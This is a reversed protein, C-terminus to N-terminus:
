YDLDCFGSFCEGMMYGMDGSAFEGESSFASVDTPVNIDPSIEYGEVTPLRRSRAQAGQRAPAPYVLASWVRHRLMRSPRAQIVDIPSADPVALTLEFAVQRLLHCPFLAHSCGYEDM